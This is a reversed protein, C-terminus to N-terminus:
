RGAGGRQLQKLRDDAAPKRAQEGASILLLTEAPSWNNLMKQAVPDWLIHHWEKEHLFMKNKSYLHKVADKLSFERGLLCEVARAFALQGVPRFLLHNRKPQRFYSSPKEEHDLVTKYEPVVEILIEWYKTYFDYMDDLIAAEPRTRQVTKLKPWEKGSRPYLAKVIQFLGLVSTIAKTDSEIISVTGSFSVVGEKQFLPFEDIMQRTVVALGNDEHLAVLDRPSVHRATQNLTVFLRRTRKMGEETRGHAVLIVTVEENGLGPEEFVAKKIGALRHQGDIPFLKEKGTLTLIGVTENIRIEDTASLEERPDAVNLPGWQANGGYVGVVLANFFRSEENILYESIETAHEHRLQRQIWDRLKKSSHVEAVDKVRGAVESFRL